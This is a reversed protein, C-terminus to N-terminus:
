SHDLGPNGLRIEGDPFQCTLQVRMKQKGDLPIRMPASKGKTVVQNAAVADDAFVKLQLPTDDDRAKSVRLEARLATYRGLLDYEVVRRRDSTQGTACHIVLDDGAPRVNDAGVTPTLRVLPVPAATVAPDVAAPPGTTTATRAAPAPPAPGAKSEGVPSHPQVWAFYAIVLAVLAITVGMGGFVVQMWASAAEAPSKGEANSM